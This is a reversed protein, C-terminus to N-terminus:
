VVAEILDQVCEQYQIDMLVKLVVVMLIWCSWLMLLIDEM